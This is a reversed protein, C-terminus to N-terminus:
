KSAFLVATEVGPIAGDRYLLLLGMETNNTTQGFDLMRLKDSAKPALTTAGVGGIDFVGLYQEGLPSITIGEIGDTFVGQFFNDFAYVNIDMPDYFNDANMGIQEGCILMVTNGSRMQHDTYFFATSGRTAADYVFTVNRGDTLASGSQDSTYVEYDLDGDQDADIDVTFSFPANAHTQQEFTNVAFAMVFSPDASCYGAPVPYTAYGVYRLDPVPNNEGPGGEPLDGNKGILSYSEVRSTALGSNSAEVYGAPKWRVGVLGAKRPLMQWPVHITDNANKVNTLTIYGDYEYRSLLDANAGQDGSNPGNLDWAELRETRLVFNIGFSGVGNASVFVRSPASIKFVNRAEDDAYRYSVSIRYTKGENTYNRVTIGPRRLINTRAWDDFGLSVVPQESYVEWAAVPSALARDVRVEGGGIRTIAALGGGLLGSKNLINTEGTNVLVAKIELPGREPYADMLLAAAGTVMPAAGSTGSFPEVGTGSGSVASVSAGPAGIEPKIIHSAMAPGRSSSGAMSQVLPEANAPDFRVTVGANLGSKVANAAAQTINFGPVSPDGGGYSFVTPDGPAVLGVVVALAGAAAGNSVKISIACVGRDVLLVKGAAAGPAFAACGNLNGGAGNGYQVPAEIVGALPASWPQWLAAYDGAISAPSLVEMVDMQASPVQTQAVSLATPANGPTGSVFPKDSSNGASAVTLVGVATANDVAFSLDDDFAQGYPSGLSMNVIDLHDSMNADGNPDLVWDMAQLLAVGSCSTSVSSCVKLAYLSVGPAVGGDGGIIDAVHTGHGGAGGMGGEDIPDEDPALPGNPWSEGVFDYGGVVDETPFLGDRTTNRPDALSEGYAAIYAELTGAGGLHAHTYDIGSDLVAVKVGAGDYGQNQVATAGIYPVTEALDLAYNVVPRVSRVNPDAALQRLAAADVEVMVANIAKQAAGLVQASSDLSQVTQVVQAQQQQVASVQAVADVAATSLGQAAVAEALSPRSLQVVVQVKGQARLLAPEVKGEAADSAQTVPAALKLANVSAPLARSSSGRATTIIGEAPVELESIIQDRVMPLYLLSDGAPQSGEYPSDDPPLLPEDQALAPAVSSLLLVVVILLVFWTHQPRNM